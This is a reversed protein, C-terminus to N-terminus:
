RTLEDAFGAVLRRAAEDLTAAQKCFAFRALRRGEAADAAYFASPPICAVGVDKTLHRAFAIDDGHPWARAFDALVFYTGRPVAVDLGVARLAAVVRDRRATYEAKLEAVFDDRLTDLAVAAAQQFPTASCFTLFQHAAQLGAVLHAPGTAWGTKWGTLSYTKGLSSLTLTRERMGPLTAIPVHPTGDYTLHEYVEDAVVIAGHAECLRAIAALEDPAFVKGTPNHPTNLLVARTRPTFCAALAAEDLAFDPFRLTCPRVTGGAMAVAAPYSDYFPEFLVVEDGPELLGLMAAAIGETAGATVAVETWPDYALGYDHAVRDAVARVLRPHGASRAYQNHGAGMAAAAADLLVDPGDFDPFGQALNIAGHEIALATMTSFVSAGFPRLRTATAPADPAETSPASM